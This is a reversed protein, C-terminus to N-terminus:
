YGCYLVWYIASAFPGLTELKTPDLTRCANNLDQYFPPEMSYLTLILQVQPSNPDNLIELTLPNNIDEEGMDLCLLLKNFAKKMSNRYLGIDLDKEKLDKFTWEVTVMHHIYIGMVVEKMSPLAWEDNKYTEAWLNGYEGM